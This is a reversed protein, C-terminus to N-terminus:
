NGSSPLQKLYKVVNACAEQSMKEWEDTDKNIGGFFLNRIPKKLGKDSIYKAFQPLNKLVNDMAPNSGWPGVAKIAEITITIWNTPKAKCIKFIPYLLIGSGDSHISALFVQHDVRSGSIKLEKGSLTLEIPYTYIGSSIIKQQKTVIAQWKNKSWLTETPKDELIDALSIFKSLYNPSVNNQVSTAILIVGPFDKVVTDDVQGLYFFVPVIECGVKITGLQWCVEKPFEQIDQTISLDHSLSDFLQEYQFRWRKLDHVDVMEKGAEPCVYFARAQSPVHVEHFEGCTQCSVNDLPTDLALIGIKELLAFEQDSLLSRLEKEPLTFPHELPLLDFLRKM